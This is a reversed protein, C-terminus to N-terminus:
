RATRVRRRLRAPAAFMVLAMLGAAGAAGIAAAGWEFGRDTSSVSPAETTAAALGTPAGQGRSALAQEECGPPAKTHYTAEWLVKCSSSPETPEASAAPASPAALALAAVAAALSRPALGRSRRHFIM